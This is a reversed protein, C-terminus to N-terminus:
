GEYGFACFGFGAYEGDDKAGRGLPVALCAREFCQAYNEDRSLMRMAM